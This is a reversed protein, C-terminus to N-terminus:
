STPSYKLVVIGDAGAGGAFNGRNSGGGGAGIGQADNGNAFLLQAPAGRGLLSSGGAGGSTNDGARPGGNGGPWIPITQNPTLMGADLYTAQWNSNDVINGAGGNLPPNNALLGKGGGGATVSYDDGEFSSAGGSTGDGNVIGIGGQGVVFAYSSSPTVRMVHDMVCAGGGGGSGSFSTNGGGGGGGAGCLTVWVFRVGSPCTWSGSETFVEVTMNGCIAGQCFASSDIGDLTDADIGGGPGLNLRANDLTGSTLESADTTKVHHASPVSAHAAIRGDVDAQVDSLTMTGLRATVLAFPVSSLQQRPSLVAGDVRVELWRDPAGFVDAGIALLLDVAGSQLAVDPRLDSWLPSAGGTETDWITFELDHLGELPVGATDALRAQYRVLDPPAALAAPVTWGLVWLAALVAQRTNKRM